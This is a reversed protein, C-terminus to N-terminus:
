SDWGSKQQSWKKTSVVSGMGFRTTPSESRSSPLGFFCSPKELGFDSGAGFRVASGALEPAEGDPSPTPFTPSSWFKKTARKFSKIFQEPASQKEHKRHPKKVRKIVSNQNVVDLQTKFRGVWIRVFM